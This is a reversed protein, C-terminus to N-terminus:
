RAGGKRKRYRALVLDVGERVYEAWPVRTQETLKELEAKQKPDLYVAVKIRKQDKSNM